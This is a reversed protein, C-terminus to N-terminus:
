LTTSSESIKRKLADYLTNYATSFVIESQPAYRHITNIVEEFTSLYDPIIRVGAGILIIDYSENQLHLSITKVSDKARRVLLMETKFGDSEIARKESQIEESVKSPSLLTAEKQYPNSIAGVDDPDAGIILISQITM